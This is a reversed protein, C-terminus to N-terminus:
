MMSVSDVVNKPLLSRYSACDPRSLMKKITGRAKAMAEAQARPGSSVMTAALTQTETLELLLQCQSVAQTNLAIAREFCSIGLQVLHKPDVQYEEHKTFTNGPIQDSPVQQGLAKKAYMQFLRGAVHIHVVAEEKRDQGQVMITEGWEAQLWPDYVELKQLHHILRLHGPTKRCNTAQNTTVYEWALDEDTVAETQLDICSETDENWTSQCKALAVSAAHTDGAAQHVAAAEHLYTCAEEPKDVRQLIEAWEEFYRGRQTPNEKNLEMYVMNLATVAEVRTYKCDVAQKLYVIGEALSEPTGKNLLTAGMWNVPDCFTPDIAVAREFHAMAQDWAQYRRQLIGNNMQVKASDACVDLASVFLQEESEWDSNRTVTRHSYGLFLAAAMACVALHRALSPPRPPSKKGQNEDANSPESTEVRLATSSGERFTELTDALLMCYGMSPLYLLREAIYTGVYFFINTAPLMPGLVFSYLIFLRLRVYALAPSQTKKEKEDEAPSEVLDLARMLARMGPMVGYVTLAAVSAYLLAIYALRADAWSRIPKVCEFSWDASLNKPFILIWAYLTHLYMINLARLGGGAPMFPIYNEVQRYIDVISQVLMIKRFMMYTIFVAFSAGVRVQRAVVREDRQHADAPPPPPRARRSQKPSKTSKPTTAASTYAATDTENSTEMHLFYFVDYLVFAGLVTIGNEKSLVAAVAYLMPKVAGWIQKSPNTVSQMYAMMGLLYFVACILEARGV